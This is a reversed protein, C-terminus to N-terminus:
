SRKEDKGGEFCLKNILEDDAGLRIYDVVQSPSCFEEQNVQVKSESTYWLSILLLTKVIYFM